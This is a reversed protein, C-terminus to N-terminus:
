KEDTSNSDLSSLLLRLGFLFLFLSIAIASVSDLFWLHTKGYVMLSILNMVAMMVGCGTNIGDVFLSRSHLKRSVYIKGIMLVGFTVLITSEIPMLIQPKFSPIWEKSLNYTAKAILAIGSIIFMIAILICARIEDQKCLFKWVVVLSTLVDLMINIGLGLGAPTREKLALVFISVGLGLQLFVSILLLCVAVRKWFDHAVEIGLDDKSVDDDNSVLPIQECREM